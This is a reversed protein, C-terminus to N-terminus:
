SRWVHHLLLHIRHVLILYYRQGYALYCFMGQIVSQEVPETQPVIAYVRGQTGSTGAQPGQGRGRSMSQGRQGTTISFASSCYAIGSVLGEPGDQPLFSCVTQLPGM